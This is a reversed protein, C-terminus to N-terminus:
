GTLSDSTAKGTATRASTVRTSRSTSSGSRGSTSTRRIGHEELGRGGLSRGLTYFWSCWGNVISRTRANQVTGVADAYEELAAYPSAAVNLMFRNSGISRGPRLTIPPAYVSEGLFSIENEGTKAALVLGLTLTNELYGLM